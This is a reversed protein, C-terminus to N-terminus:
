FRGRQACNNRMVPGEYEPYGLTGILDSGYQADQGYDNVGRGSSVNGFELTCGHPSTVRSWYPYFDGPGAPPVSCGATTTGSCTSESLAIDTQMFFQQYPAGGSTPLQEVFSSPLTATPSTGVPWDAYYPNGDFDLDGNQLYNDQCGTTTDPDSATGPGDFGPHTDGAYYCLGDGTEAGEAGGATEYPGNCENYTRGTDLPDFPNTALRESLSSCPEWHGTEYETSINTALAAWPIINGKAATNYEPQFNFPTTSCDSISTNAFGNAASAQMWGSQGTTLDAVYVEFARGGGGPVPADWMRFRITDGPNMLLTESNPTLSAVDAESPSAPGTPVGDRQIWGFNMPEECNANCTAFGTTCELSDITLAACWHTDDCSASNVFPPEGPPYLQFEMFASGGGSSCNTTSAGVCTPANSDSEPKCPAQPYSGPDCIAMSFWPAPSLEFWHTVDKGPSSDTPAASPDRPLTETWSINNGSGHQHSIFTMDPEDHGIYENNDYFRGNWTNTNWENNFGRIDTCALPAHVAPGLPSQGNCDLEGATAASAAGPLVVLACAVAFLAALLLRAGHGSRSRDCRTVM